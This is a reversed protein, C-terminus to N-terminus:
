TKMQRLLKPTVFWVLTGSGAAPPWSDFDIRCVGGKKFALPQGAGVLWAALEGLGPEHGVLAIARTKRHAALASAVRAPKQGPTLAPFQIAEPHGELGDTLIKATQAARVLPSTLIVDVQADIARLGRAIRQMRGAGDRTLPRKEDDPWAEGREEAIAHRVLYLTHEM